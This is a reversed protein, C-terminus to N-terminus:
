SEEYNVRERKQHEEVFIWNWKLHGSVAFENCLQYWAPRAFYVFIYITENESRREITFM